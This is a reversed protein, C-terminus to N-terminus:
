RLRVMVLAGGLSWAVALGVSLLWVSVSLTGYTLAVLASGLTVGSFSVAIGALFFTLFRRDITIM